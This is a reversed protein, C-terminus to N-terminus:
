RTSGVAAASVPLITAVVRHLGGDAFCPVLNGQVPEGDVEIGVEGRQIGHPNRLLIHYRAGRFERTLECERWASPMAPDIRLGEFDARVGLIGETMARFFWGGAGTMWSFQTEGARPNDPGIYQNTFSYPECGSHTSPNGDNDPMVKMWTDLAADGRGAACDALVKFGSAHCYPTGNEWMGPFMATVRGVHKRVATYPPDFTKFGYPTALHTEIEAFLRDADEGEVIGALVAWVQPLLWIRAESDKDSGIREGLDNIARLFWKGDWGHQRVARTLIAARQGLEAALPEEGVVQAAIDAAVKLSYVIGITTWVSEGKGELDVGTLSDNWDGFRCRVLGHPGLDESSHRLGQLTHEWVTGGGHDFYPVVHELISKDGSEKLYADVVPAIWV